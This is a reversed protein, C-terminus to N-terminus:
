QINEPSRPKFQSCVYAVPSSPNCISQMTKLPQLGFLNPSRQQIHIPFFPIQGFRQCWGSIDFLRLMCSDCYTDNTHANALHKRMEEPREENCIYKPSSEAFLPLLCTLLPLVDIRNSKSVDCLKCCDTKCPFNEAESSWAYDIAVLLARDM